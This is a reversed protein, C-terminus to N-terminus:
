SSIGSVDKLRRAVMSVTSRGKKETTKVSQSDAIAVTSQKDRGLETRLRERVQDHMQQWIGKRQWKQFYGYVTTYPPLDHPLMEWQCGTRQVYFIANLIERFKVEVPHGFGKPAPVLPKLVEWEVDSLDSPYPKRKPNAIEPLRTM